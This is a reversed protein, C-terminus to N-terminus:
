LKYLTKEYDKLRRKLAKVLNDTDKSYTEQLIQETHSLESRLKALSEFNIETYKGYNKIDNYWEKITTAKM